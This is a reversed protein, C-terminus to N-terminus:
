TYYCVHFGNVAADRLFIGGRGSWEEGAFLDGGNVLFDAGVDPAGGDNFGGAGVEPQGADVEDELEFEKLVGTRKFGAASEGIEKGAFDRGGSDDGSGAAVVAGGNGEGGLFKALGRANEDRGNTGRFFDLADAAVASMEDDSPLAVGVGKRGAFGPGRLGARQLDVGEVLGLRQEALAGDAEFELFLEGREVSKEDRDATAAEDAADGRPIGAAHFDDADFGFGCGGEVVSEAGAMRNVAGGAANGRVGESGLLDALEHEGERLGVDGGNLENGVVGDELGLLSEPFDQAYGGFGAAGGGEGGEERATVLRLGAFPDADEEAAGIGGGNM